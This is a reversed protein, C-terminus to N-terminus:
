MSLSKLVLDLKDSVTRLLDSLQEVRESLAVIPSPEKEKSALILDGEGTLIYDHNLEPFLKCVEDAFTKPIASEGYEISKSKEDPLTPFAVGGGLEETRNIMYNCVELYRDWEPVLCHASWYRPPGAAEFLQILKQTSLKASGQEVLSIFGRSVNLYEAVDIQRIGNLQRWAALQVYNRNNKM